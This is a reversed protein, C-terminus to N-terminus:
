QTIQYINPLKKLSGKSQQEGSIVKALSLSKRKLKNETWLVDDIKKLQNVAEIDTGEIKPPAKPAPPIISKRKLTTLIDLQGSRITLSEKRSKTDRMSMQSAQSMARLENERNLKEEYVLHAMRDDYNSQNKEMTEILDDYLIPIHDPAMNRAPFYFPKNVRKPLFSSSPKSPYEPHDIIQWHCAGRPIVIKGPNPSIITQSDPNCASCKHIMTSHSIKKPNTGFKRCLSIGYDEIMDVNIGEPMPLSPPGPPPSLGETKAEFALIEHNNEIMEISNLYNKAKIEIERIEKENKPGVVSKRIPVSFISM